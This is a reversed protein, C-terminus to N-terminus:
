VVVRVMIIQMVVTEYLGFVTETRVHLIDLDVKVAPVVVSYTSEKVGGRTRSRFSMRKWRSSCDNQVLVPSAHCTGHEEGGLMSTLENQLERLTEQQSWFDMTDTSADLSLAVITESDALGVFEYGTGPDQLDDAWSEDDPQSLRPKHYSVSVARYRFCRL